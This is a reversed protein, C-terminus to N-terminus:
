HKPAIQSIHDTFYNPDLLAAVTDVQIFHCDNKQPSDSPHINVCVNDDFFLQKLKDHPKIQKAYKINKSNNNWFHYDEQLALIHPCDYIFKNIIDMGIYTDGSDMVLTIISNDATIVNSNSYADTSVYKFVGKLITKEFGHDVLKSIVKDIDGGFTRFVIGVHSYERMVKLFSEFLFNENSEVLKDVLPKFKEGQHGPETFSEGEHLYNETTQKLYNWYSINDDGFVSYPNYTWKKDKVTGRMVKSIIVNANAVPDGKDTSDVGTITGNIDFHLVLKKDEDDIQQKKTKIYKCMMILFDFSAYTVFVVLALLGLFSSVYM